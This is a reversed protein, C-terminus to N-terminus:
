KPWADPLRKQDAEARKQNTAVAPNGKLQMAPNGKALGTAFAVTERLASSNGFLRAVLFDRSEVVSDQRM